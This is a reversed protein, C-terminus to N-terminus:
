KAGLIYVSHIHIRANEYVVFEDNLLTNSGWTKTFSKHGHISDFGLANMKVRTLTHDAKPMIKCRGLQVWARILIFGFGCAKLVIPTFYIGRGFMGNHNPLKFNRALITALNRESTGHWLLQANPIRHNYKHFLAQKVYYANALDPLRTKRCEWEKNIKIIESDNLVTNEDIYNEIISHRKYEQPQKKKSTRPKYKSKKQKGRQKM